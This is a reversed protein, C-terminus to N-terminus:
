VGVDAYFCLAIADDQDGVRSLSRSNRRRRFQRFDFFGEGKTRKAADDGLSADTPRSLDVGVAAAHMGSKPQCRLHFNPNAIVNPAEIFYASAFSRGPLNVLARDPFCESLFMPYFSIPLVFSNGSTVSFVSHAHVQDVRDLLIPLPPREYNPIRM